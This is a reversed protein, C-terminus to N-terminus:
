SYVLLCAHVCVYMAQACGHRVCVSTCVYMCACLYVCRCCLSMTPEPLELLCVCVSECACMRRRCHTLQLSQCSWFACMSDCVYVCLCVRSWVQLLPDM